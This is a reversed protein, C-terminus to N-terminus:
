TVKLPIERDIFAFEEGGVVNAFRRNYSAEILILNCVLIIAWLLRYLAPVSIARVVEIAGPCQHGRAAV